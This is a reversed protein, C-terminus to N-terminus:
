FGKLSCLLSVKTVVELFVGITGPFIFYKSEKYILHLPLVNM